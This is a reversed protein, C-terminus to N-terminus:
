ALAVQRLAVGAFVPVGRNGWISPGEGKRTVSDFPAVTTGAQGHHGRTPSARALQDADRVTVRPFRCPRAVPLVEGEHAERPLDADSSAVAATEGPDGLSGM